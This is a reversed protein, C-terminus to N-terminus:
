DAEYERYEWAQCSRLNHCIFKFKHCYGRGGANTDFENRSIDEMMMVMEPTNEFYECNSCRQRRAEAENINWVRAMDQWYPKNADPEDSPELPGLRWEKITRQTNVTNEEETVIVPCIVIEESPAMLGKMSKTM